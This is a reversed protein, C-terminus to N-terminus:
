QWFASFLIRLKSLNIILSLLHEMRFKKAGWYIFGLGGVYVVFVYNFDGERKYHSNSIEM